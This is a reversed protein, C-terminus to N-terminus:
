RCGRSCTRGLSLSMSSESALALFVDAAAPPRRGPEPMSISSTDNWWHTLSPLNSMSRVIEEAEKEPPNKDPHWRLCLKRYATRVRDLDGRHEDPVELVVYAEDITLPREGRFFGRM